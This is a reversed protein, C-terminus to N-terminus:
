RDAGNGTLEETCHRCLFLPEGAETRCVNLDQYAIGCRSCVSSLPVKRGLVTIRPTHTSVFDAMLGDVVPGYKQGLRDCTARFTDYTDRSVLLNAYTKAPDM